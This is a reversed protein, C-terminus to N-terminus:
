LSNHVVLCFAFNRFDFTTQTIKTCLYIPIFLKIEPQLIWISIFHYIIVAIRFFYSLFVCVFIFCRLSLFHPFHIIFLSFSFCVQHGSASSSPKVMTACLSQDFFLLHFSCISSTIFLAFQIISHSHYDKSTLQGKALIVYYLINNWAYVNYSIHIRLVNENM